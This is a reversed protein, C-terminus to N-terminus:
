VWTHTHGPARSCDWAASRGTALRSEGECVVVKLVSKWEVGCPFVSAGPLVCSTWPGVSLYYTAMGWNSSGLVDEHTYARVCM